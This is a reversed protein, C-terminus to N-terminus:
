SGRRREEVVGSSKRRSRERKIKGKIENVGRKESRNDGEREKKLRKEGERKEM